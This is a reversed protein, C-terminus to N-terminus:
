AADADPRLEDKLKDVVATVIEDLDCRRLPAREALEEPTLDRDPAANRDLGFATAFQDRVWTLDVAKAPERAALFEDSYDKAPAKRADYGVAEALQDRAWTINDNVKALLRRDDDSFMDDEEATGALWDRVDRRFANMDWFAPDIKRTPAWEKHGLVNGEGVRMWRCLAAVGRPYNVRQAPTWDDRVGTSEAEIGILYRNGDNGPVFRAAGPGAHNARGCAVVHFTGDRSLMLQALPGQLDSRGNMVIGLSPLDGRASGATHHLLVGLPTFLGGTGRGQCGAHEIVPLDDARLAEGLWPASM